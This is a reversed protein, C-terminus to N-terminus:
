KLPSGLRVFTVPDAILFHLNHHAEITGKPIEIAKGYLGDLGAPDPVVLFLHQRNGHRDKVVFVPLGVVHDDTGFFRYFPVIEGRLVPAPESVIPVSSPPPAGGKFVFTSPKASRLFTLGDRHSFPGSFRCALGTKRAVAEQDLFLLTRLGYHRVELFAQGHVVRVVGSIETPSGDVAREAMPQAFGLAAGLVAAASVALGTGTRRSWRARWPPLVSVATLGFLGVGLIAASVVGGEPSIRAWDLDAAVAVGMSVGTLCLGLLLGLGIHLGRSYRNLVTLVSLLGAYFCAYSALVLWAAQPQVIKGVILYAVLFIAPLVLFRLAM